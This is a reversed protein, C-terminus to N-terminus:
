YWFVDGKISIGPTTPHRRSVSTSCGTSPRRTLSILPIRWGAAFGGTLLGLRIRGEGNAIIFDPHGPASFSVDKRSYSYIGLEMSTRCVGNGANGSPLCLALLAVSPLVLATVTRSSSSVSKAEQMSYRRTTCSRRSSEYCSDFILLGSRILVIVFGEQTSLGRDEM